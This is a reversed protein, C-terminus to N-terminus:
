ITIKQQQSTCCSFYYYLWFGKTKIIKVIICKLTIKKKKEDKNKQPNAPSKSYRLQSKVLNSFFKVMTEESVKDAM